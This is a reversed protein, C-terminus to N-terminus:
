FAMGADADEEHWPGPQGMKKELVERCEALAPIAYGNVRKEKKGSELTASNAAHWPSLSTAVIKIDRLKHGLLDRIRKGFQTKDFVHGRTRRASDLYSQYLRDKAVMITAEDWAGTGSVVSTLGHGFDTMIEGSELCEFWWQGVSDLGRIKALLKAEQPGTKPLERPNFGSIDRHLLHHILAETGGGQIEEALAEFYAHDGKRAESVELVVFRRDDFDIPAAWDNNSAMILHTRNLVRYKPIRKQEVFMEEDNVLSKLSGEQTKDGGWIAENAFVLVSTALHANFKGVLDAPKVCVVAHDGFARVLEDIIINKGTGQGSQLLLVTRGREDPYQFLRALWGMVYDFLEANGGCWIERIHEIMKSCDGEKPQIALGQYLNLVNEDPLSLEGAVLGPVPRFVMQSYSRRREWQMWAEFLPKRKVIANGNAYHQVDPLTQDRSYNSMAAVSSLRTVFRGVNQDLERYVVVDKGEVMVMAQHRNFAALKSDREDPVLEQVWESGGYSGDWGAERAMWFLTGLTVGGERDLDFTGWRYEPEGPRYLSGRASWTDWLLLGEPGPDASHLAMGVQLWDQYSKDPDLHELASAIEVPNLPSSGDATQSARALVATREPRVVPPFQEKLDDWAWPEAGSASIVRVLHPADPNKLHYFGPLRLVRSRDKANPDSGYDDVLRQQVSEFEDLVADRVLMYRHFKGPSSEVVVHPALPLEPEDGRDAEQWLARIRVINEKKRGMGNAENVTVFAGAGMSNQLGLWSALEDLTGTQIRALPDPRPKDKGDTFTAFTFVSANPDLHKLFRHAEDLSFALGPARMGAVAHLAAAMVPNGEASAGRDM